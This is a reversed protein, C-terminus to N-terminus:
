SRPSHGEESSPRARLLEVVGFATRFRDYREVRDFGAEEIFAPLRGARHDATRDFGDIAQAVFFAGSMVPDTPRGWDAVHLHGGPELIRKMEGLARRKDEPLLHHLVLSITVVDASGSPVPLEQALGEHWEVLDAGPKGRAVALIEEDGDVGIVRADSRGEKLALSFTGTGCGVDVLAGGEPLDSSVRRMMETRFRKERMTLALVPDYLRTFARWRAAPIYRPETEAAM